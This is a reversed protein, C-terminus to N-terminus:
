EPQMIARSNESYVVPSEGRLQRFAYTDEIQNLAPVYYHHSRLLKNYLSVEEGDKMKVMM